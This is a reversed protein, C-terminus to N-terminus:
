PYFALVRYGAIRWPASAKPASASAAPAPVPNAIALTLVCSFDTGAALTAATAGLEGPTLVRRLLAQDQTDTLTLELSPVAMAVAGTNKIVVKLQYTDASVKNFSSSDIAISEIHQPPKVECGLYTCLTQLGPNLWPQSAALTNRQFLAVQLLLLALLMLAALGLAWRMAPRRWFAHRRADRVFSVDESAEHVPAESEGFGQKDKSLAPPAPESFAFADPSVSSAFVEAALDPPMSVQVEPVSLLDTHAQPPLEDADAAEPAVFLSAPSVLEDTDVVEAAAAGSVPLPFNQADHAQLHAAADFVESCQGCRVWGQSIKLQDAVVKFMTGCAPCRTILSM